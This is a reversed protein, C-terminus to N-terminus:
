DILLAVGAVAAIIVIAIVVLRLGTIGISNKPYQASYEDRNEKPPIFQTAM